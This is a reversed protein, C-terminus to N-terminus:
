YATTMDILGKKRAFYDGIKFIISALIFFFITSVTLISIVSSTPIFNIAQDITICFIARRIAELWYTIPLFLSFSRCWNPLVSIPFVVGCFLYFIGAVGENIFGGHKATLLCIGGLAIGLGVICLLGIIFSIFLLPYDITMLNIPINLVFIGFAITIIVSVTTLFIKTMGRGFLYLYINAPSIYVYKLTRYHERDEHVVWSVGFLVQAVYMYFANGVYMYSFFTGELQGMTVVMYMVVILLTAAIPKVLSYIAFLFPNTWNSEMQWGLWSSSKLIKLGAKIAM